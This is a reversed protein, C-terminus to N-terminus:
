PPEINWAPSIEAVDADDVVRQIQNKVDADDMDSFEEKLWFHWIKSPNGVKAHSWLPEGDSCKTWSIWEFTWLDPRPDDLRQQVTQDEGAAEFMSFSHFVRSHFVSVKLYNPSKHSTHCSTLIKKSGAWLHLVTVSFHASCFGLRGPLGVCLLMSECSCELNFPDLSWYHVLLSWNSAQLQRLTHESLVPRGGENLGETHCSPHRSRTSDIKMPWHQSSEDQFEM